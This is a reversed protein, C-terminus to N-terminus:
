QYWIVKGLIDEEKIWGFTRSDTSMKENDGLIFLQRNDLMKIRKVIKKGNKTVVVLDGIKLGLLKWWNFSLIDQGPKLTPLM